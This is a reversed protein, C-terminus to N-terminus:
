HRPGPYGDGLRPAEEKWEKWGRLLAGAGVRLAGHKHVHVGTAGGSTWGTCFVRKINIHKVQPKVTDQVSEQIM